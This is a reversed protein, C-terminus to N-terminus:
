PGGEPGAHATAVAELHGALLPVAPRVRVTVARGSLGIRARRRLRAPLAARAAARPDRDQLLAIAGAGAAQGAQENAAQAALVTFAAFGVAAMLPLLGVLEVAAQGREGALPSPARRPTIARARRSM